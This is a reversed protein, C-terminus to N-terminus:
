LINVPGREDAPHDTLKAWSLNNFPSAWALIM